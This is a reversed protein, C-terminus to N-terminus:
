TGRPTSSNKIAYRTNYSFQLVYERMQAIDQTYIDIDQEREVPVLLAYRPQTPKRLEVYSLKLPELSSPNHVAYLVNKKYDLQSKKLFYTEVLEDLIRPYTENAIFYKQLGTSIVSAYSINQM